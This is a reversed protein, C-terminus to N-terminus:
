QFHLNLICRCKQIHRWKGLLCIDFNHLLKQGKNTRSKTPGHHQKGQTVDGQVEFGEEPLMQATELCAEVGPAISKLISSFLLSQSFCIKLRLTAPKFGPVTVM